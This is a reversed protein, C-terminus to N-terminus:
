FGDSVLTLMHFVLEGDKLVQTLLRHMILMYLKQIAESGGVKGQLENSFQKLPVVADAEIYFGFAQIQKWLIYTFIVEDPTDSLIAKLSKLYEPAMVIIQDPVTGKPSLSEILQALHIEPVVDDAAALSMPNYYKTVDNRDEADPSAAALNKEFEILAHYDNTNLNLNPYLASIVQSAVEEYRKLVKENAYLEKAPLGIRYPASVSVVVTDPDKDDAGTGVAILATVDLKALHLVAASIATEDHGHSTFKTATENLAHVLPTVGIKRLADQDM